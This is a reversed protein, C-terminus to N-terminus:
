GGDAKSEMRRMRSLRRYDPCIEPPDVNLLRAILQGPVNDQGFRSSAPILGRAMLSDAAPILTIALRVAALLEFYDTDGARRESAQESIEIIETRSLFGELLDGQAGARAFEDMVQPAASAM